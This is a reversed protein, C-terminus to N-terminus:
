EDDWGFQAMSDAKLRAAFEALLRGTRTIDRMSIMEVPTHMYRLPISLVMTPIGQASTQIADADTGSRLPMVEMSFPIELEEALAEFQKYIAPHITPGWGLTPGSELAFTMHAPSGPGSGYTVDVAVALAPRVQFASTAAGLMTTEEQSTAAFWIDWVTRRGSLLELCHTLAAVSARNDLSHGAILHEGLEIPPQAFSVRDGPRVLGALRRAPLGTDIYMNELSLETDPDSRLHRPALGIVGDIKQRAHVHVQLGPLTSPDISGVYTFRLFSGQLSTVMLGIADMHAAILLAPRPEPGSGGLLGHLSGTRTVTLEGVLDRWSAAIIDRVPKETGSIGAESILSKLTAKLEPM